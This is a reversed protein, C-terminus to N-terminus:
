AGAAAPAGRLAPLVAEVYAPVHRLSKKRKFAFGGIM